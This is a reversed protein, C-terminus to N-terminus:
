IFKRFHINVVMKLFCNLVKNGYRAIIAGLSIGGPM